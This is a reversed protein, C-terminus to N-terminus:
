ECNNLFFSLYTDDPHITKSKSQMHARDVPVSLSKVERVLGALFMPAAFSTGSVNCGIDEFPCNPPTTYPLCIIDQVAVGPEVFMDERYNSNTWLPMNVPQDICANKINRCAAGVEYVHFLESVPAVDGFENLIYDFPVSYGSPYHVAGADLDASSNGASNTMYIGKIDLEQIARQLQRENFNMGWSNNVFDANKVKAYQLGCVVSYTTGVGCEDFSKVTLIKTDDPNIGPLKDVAEFYSAVVATGHGNEDVISNNNDVFNFGYPDPVSIFGGGPPIQCLTSNNDEYITNNPVFDSFLGGDIFAITAANPNLNSNQGINFNNANPDFPAVLDYNIIYNLSVQGGEQTVPPCHAPQIGGETVLLDTNEYLFVNQNCICRQTTGPGPPFNIPPFANMMTITLFITDPNQQPNIILINGILIIDLNDPFTIVVQHKVYENGQADTDTDYNNCPTQECLIEQECEAACGGIYAHFDGGLVEFGPDLCISEGASMEVSTNPFVLIDANIKHEADFVGFTFTSFLTTDYPCGPIQQSISYFSLFCLLSMIPLKIKFFNMNTNNNTLSLPNFM